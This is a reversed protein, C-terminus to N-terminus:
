TVSPMVDRTPPAFCTFETATGQSQRTAYQTPTQWLLAPWTASPQIFAKLTLLYLQPRSVPFISTFNSYRHTYTNARAHIHSRTHTHARAHIHTRTHPRARTYTRAHARTHTHAHIHIHAHVHAHTYIHTRAHTHTHIHIYTHTYTYTHTHIYRHIHPLSILVCVPRQVSLWRHEGAARELRM